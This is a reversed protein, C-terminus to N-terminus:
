VGLASDGLEPGEHAIGRGEVLEERLVLLFQSRQARAPPIPNKRKVTAAKMTPPSGGFTLSEAWSTAEYKVSSRACTRTEDNRNATPSTRKRHNAPATAFV